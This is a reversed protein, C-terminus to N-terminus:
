YVTSDVQGLLNMKMYYYTKNLNIKPQMRRKNFQVNTFYFIFCKSTLLYM